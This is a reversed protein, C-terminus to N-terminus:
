SSFRTSDKLSAKQLRRDIAEATREWLTPDTNVLAAVETRSLGFGQDCLAMLTKEPNDLFEARFEEDTALRGILMEVFRQSVDCGGGRVFAFEAGVVAIPRLRDFSATNRVNQRLPADAPVESSFRAHALQASGYL